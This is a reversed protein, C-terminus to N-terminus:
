HLYRSNSTITFFDQKLGQGFYIRTRISGSSYLAAICDPQVSALGSVKLGLKFSGTLERSDDIGGRRSTFYGYTKGM